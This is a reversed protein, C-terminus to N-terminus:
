KPTYLFFRVNLDFVTAIALPQGILLALLEFSALCDLRDDNEELFVVTQFATV